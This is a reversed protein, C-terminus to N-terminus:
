SASKLVLMWLMVAFRLTDGVSLNLAHAYSHTLVARNEERRLQAAVGNRSGTM